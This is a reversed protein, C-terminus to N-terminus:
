DFDLLFVNDNKQCQKRVQNQIANQIVKPITKSSMQSTKQNGFRTLFLFTHFMCFMLKVDPFCYIRLNRSTMKSRLISAFVSHSVSSTKSLKKARNQSSKPAM